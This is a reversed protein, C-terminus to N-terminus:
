SPSPILPPMLFVQPTKLAAISRSSMYRTTSGIFQTLYNWLERNPHELDIHRALDVARRQPLPQHSAAAPSRSSLSMTRSTTSSRTQHVVARIRWSARAGTSTASQLANHMKKTVSFFDPPGHITRWGTEIGLSNMLLTLSGLLMSVGGGYYTSNVNVVRCQRLPRAKSKIRAVAEAGIHKEYDDITVIGHHDM